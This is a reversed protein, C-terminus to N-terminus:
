KPEYVTLCLDPIGLRPVGASSFKGQAHIM